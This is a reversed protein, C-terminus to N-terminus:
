TVDIGVYLEFVYAAAVFSGIFGGARGKAVPVKMYTM